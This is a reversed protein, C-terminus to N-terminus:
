CQPGTILERVTRIIFKTNQNLKYEGEILTSKKLIVRALAEGPYLKAGEHASSTVLIDDQSMDEVFVSSKVMNLVNNQIKYISPPIRNKVLAQASLNRIIFQSYDHPLATPWFDDYDLAKKTLQIDTFEQIHQILDPKLGLDKQIGTLLRTLGVLRSNIEQPYVIDQDLDWLYDIGLIGKYGKKQVYKSISETQQLVREQLSATLLSQNTDNGSFQFPNMALDKFGLLQLYPGRVRIEDGICVHVSIPLNNTLWKSTKIGGSISQTQTKFTAQDAVLTTDGGSAGFAGQVIFPLGLKASCINFSSQIKNRTLSALVISPNSAIGLEDCIKSLLLKSGINEQLDYEPLLMKISKQKLIRAMIPNMYFFLARFLPDSAKIVNMFKVDCLVLEMAEDSEMEELFSKNGYTIINGYRSLLQSLDDDNFCAIQYNELLEILEASMYPNYEFFIVRTSMHLPLLNVM